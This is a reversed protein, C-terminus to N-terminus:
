QNFTTTAIRAGWKLWVFNGLIDQKLLQLKTVIFFGIQDKKGDCLNLPTGWHPTSFYITKWNGYNQSLSVSHRTRNSDSSGM